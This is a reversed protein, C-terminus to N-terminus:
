APPVPGSNYVFGMTLENNARNAGPRLQRKEYSKKAFIEVICFFCPMRRM